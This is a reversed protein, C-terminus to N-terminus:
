KKNVEYDTELTTVGYYLLRNKNRLEDLNPMSYFARPHYQHVVSIDDSISLNLGLRKIRLLFENDDYEIGKAYREDFGGLKKM